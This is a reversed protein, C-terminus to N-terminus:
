FLDIWTRSEQEEDVAEQSEKYDIWVLLGLGAFIGYICLNTLLEVM